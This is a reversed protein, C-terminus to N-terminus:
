KVVEVQDAGNEKASAKASQCAERYTFANVEVFSQNGDVILPVLFIQKEERLKTEKVKKIRIKKLFGDLRSKMTTAEKESIRPRCNLINNYRRKELATPFREDIIKLYLKEFIIDPLELPLEVQKDKLEFEVSM